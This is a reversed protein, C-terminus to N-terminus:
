RQLNFLWGLHLYVISGCLLIEHKTLRCHSSSNGSFFFERAIQINIEISVCLSELFSVPLYKPASDLKVRHAGKYCILFLLFIMSFNPGM